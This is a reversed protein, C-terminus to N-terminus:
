VVSKRDKEAYPSGDHITAFKKFGLVKSSWNAVERGSWLDNYVMRVFSDYQPGRDPATLVPSSPSIGINPIGAKWLIPAAPRTESSCSGGLAVVTQRNAAIKTAALQEGEANCQADEPLFKIPHGLIKGGIDDSAIQVARSQDLGLATDAGSMVAYVGIVIPQGKAIKVVRIEDEVPGVKVAFASTSVLTGSAIASVAALSRLLRLHRMM